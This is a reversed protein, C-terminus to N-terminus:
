WYANLNNGYIPILFLAANFLPICIDKQILTKMKKLYISLPSMKSSIITSKKQKITVERTNKLNAPGIQVRVLLPCPNGKKWIGALVQKKDKLWQLLHHRMTTKIQLYGSIHWQDDKWTGILWRDYESFHRDPRRSM